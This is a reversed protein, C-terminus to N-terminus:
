KPGPRVLHHQAPLTTGYQSGPLDLGSMSGVRGPPVTGPCTWAGSSYTASGGRVKMWQLETRGCVCDADRCAGVTRGWAGASPTEGCEVTSDERVRERIRVARELNAGHLLRSEGCDIILKPHTERRKRTAEVIAHQTPHMTRREQYYHRPRRHPM